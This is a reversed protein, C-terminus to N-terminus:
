PKSLSVSALFALAESSWAKRPEGDPLCPQTSLDKANRSRQFTLPEALGILLKIKAAAENNLCLYIVTKWEYNFPPTM